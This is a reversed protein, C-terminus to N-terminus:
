GMLEALAARYKEQFEKYTAIVEQLAKIIADRASIKSNTIVKFIPRPVLPHTMTYGAFKVDPLDNLKKNIVNALTHTLDQIEIEIENKTEKLIKLKM